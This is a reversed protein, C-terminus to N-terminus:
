RPLQPTVMMVEEKDVAVSGPEAGKPKRVFKKPTYIVPVLNSGKLKSYYAALQAATEIVKLPYPKGAKWKILVHSGTVDKAHLWLDNKHSFRQTLEDNNAASKGVWIDFGDITFQRFPSQKSKSSAEKVFSKLERFSNALEIQKLTESLIPIKMKLGEYHEQQRKIEIGSNKHKRYYYAANQQPNLDKKLKIVLPANRYFDFLEAREEGSKLQHLNAMIINAIEEDTIREKRQHIAHELDKIQKETKDLLHLTNNVLQQKL